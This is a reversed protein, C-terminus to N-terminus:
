LNLLVQFDCKLCEQWKAKQNKLMEMGDRQLMKRGGQKQNRPMDKGNEKNKTVEQQQLKTQKYQYSCAFM